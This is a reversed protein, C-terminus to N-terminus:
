IRGHRPVNGQRGAWGRERQLAHRAPLAELLEPREMLVVLDDVAVGLLLEGTLDALLLEVGHGVHAFVHNSVGLVHGEGALGAPLGELAAHGELDMRQLVRPLLWEFALVAVLAELVLVLQAGVHADVDPVLLEHALPAALVEVHLLVEVLVHLRVCALLGVDALDAPLAEGAAGVHLPVAPGVRALLGVGAVDAALAEAEGVHEFGVLLFTEADAVGQSRVRGGGLGGGAWGRQGGAGADGRQRQKM